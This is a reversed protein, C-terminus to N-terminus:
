KMGKFYKYKNDEGLLLWEIYKVGGSYNDEYWRGKYEVYGTARYKKGDINAIDGIKLGLISNAKRKQLVFKTHCYSCKIELNNYKGNKISERQIGTLSSFPIKALCHVCKLTKGRVKPSKEFSKTNINSKIKDVLISAYKKAYMNNPEEDLIKNNLEQAEQFNEKSYM